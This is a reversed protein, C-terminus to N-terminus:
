STSVRYVQSLPARHLREYRAIEVAVKCGARNGQEAVRPDCLAVNLHDRSTRGAVSPHQHAPLERGVVLDACESAGGARALTSFARKGACGVRVSLASEGVRIAVLEGLKDTGVLDGVGDAVGDEISVQVIQANRLVCTFLDHRPDVIPEVDDDCTDRRASEVLKPIVNGFM